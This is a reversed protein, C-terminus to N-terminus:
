VGSVLIHSYSGYVWRWHMPRLVKIGVGVGVGSVLIRTHRVVGSTIHVHDTVELQPVRVGRMVFEGNGPALVDHVDHRGHNTTPSPFGRM